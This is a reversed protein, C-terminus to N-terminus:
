SSIVPAPVWTGMWGDHDNSSDASPSLTDAMDPYLLGHLDIGDLGSNPPTTLTTFLEDVARSSPIHTDSLTSLPGTGDFFTPDLYTQSQQSLDDPIDNNGRAASDALTDHYRPNRHRDVFLRAQRVFERTNTFAAEGSTVYELRGLFGVITEMLIIDCPTSKELPSSLVHIFITTLATFPYYFVLAQAALLDTSGHFIASEHSLAKQFYRWAEHTSKQFAEPTEDSLAARCGSALVANLLADWSHTNNNPSTGFQALQALFTPKDLVPFTMQVTSFYAEVYKIITSDTTICPDALAVPSLPLNLPVSKPHRLLNTIGTGIEQTIRCLGDSDPIYERIWRLGRDSIAFIGSSPGTYEDGNNVRVWLAPGTECCPNQGELLRDLLTASPEFDSASLAQLGLDSTYQSDRTIDGASIKSVTTSYRRQRLQPQGDHDDRSSM